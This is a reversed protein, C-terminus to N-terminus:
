RSQGAGKHRLVDELRQREAATFEDASGADASLDARQPGWQLAKPLYWLALGVAALALVGLLAGRWSARRRRRGRNSM